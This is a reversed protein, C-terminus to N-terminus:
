LSAVSFRVVRGDKSSVIQGKRELHRIHSLAEGVAFSKQSVPFDSWEVAKIQWTMKSAIEYASQCQCSRLISIVEFLRFEHHRELENIRAYIDGPERHSPLALRVDMAATLKLSDLYSGLSDKMEAWEIINPTIDFLIHDGTFLVKEEKIYLCLHGPTHGPTSVTRLSIGGLDIVCNDDVGITNYQLSSSRALSPNRDVSDVIEEAPYGAELLRSHMLKRFEYTDGTVQEFLPRDTKSLYIESSAGAVRGALGTHDAHFHTLFIDTRDMDLSLEGISACLDEYSEQVDFGTDIMLNRRQGTVVFSNLSKLPNNPLRVIIRYINETIKEYM